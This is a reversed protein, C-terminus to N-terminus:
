YNSNKNTNIDLDNKMKQKDVFYLISAILSCYKAENISFVKPMISFIDVRKHLADKIYPFWTDLINMSSYFYIEDVGLVDNEKEKLYVNILNSLQM